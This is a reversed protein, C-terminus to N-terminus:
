RLLPPGSYLGAPLFRLLILVVILAFVVVVAIRVPPPMPIQTIAWWIVGVILLTILLDILLGLM